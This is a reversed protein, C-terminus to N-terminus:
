LRHMRIRRHWSCISLRLCLGFRLHRIADFAGEADTLNTLWIRAIDAETLENPVSQSSDDGGGDDKDDDKCSTVSMSLGGMLLAMLLFHLYKKM